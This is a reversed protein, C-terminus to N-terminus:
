AQKENHGDGKLVDHSTDVSIHATQEVQFAGFYREELPIWTDRFAGFRADGERARLRREQTQPDCTLFIGLDYKDRLFPHLCYSGEIVTLARPPLTVEPGFGGAQCRYPRYVIPKGARAPEIVAHLVYSLDMNGGPTDRWNKARLELPLYFDDMHLLNCPLTHAILAGLTTKGSGCRGDIAALAPADGDALRALAALVPAYSSDGQFLPCSFTNMTPDRRGGKHDYPSSVM